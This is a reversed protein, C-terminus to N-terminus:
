SLIKEYQRSIIEWTFKEEWNRRGAQGLEQLRAPDDLLDKITLALKVPDVRTYGFKDKPAECIIGGKTWQTIEVSNGVPVTVYPLGAAAAEFLVLPSYEVNSAFIFLDASFFAKIVDERNLNNVIIRKQGTNKVKHVLEALIIPFTASFDSSSNRYSFLTLIPFFACLQYFLNEQSNLPSGYKIGLTHLLVKIIHKIRPIFNSFAFIPPLCKIWNLINKLINFRESAKISDTEHPQNYIRFRESAKIYDTEHEQTMNGNLLLTMKKQPINLNLFANAVEIHGKLGTFSGVTLLLIEDDNIGLRKRINNTAPPNFEKHSAGNPLISYHSIGNEKAFNIDRYDTSYFILHDFKRLIDPLKKFYDQYSPEYLCSFGCPIFVKRARIQELCTWLADFTWQQAAKILIVDFDSEILFNQYATIEGNIGRVQNGSISFEKIAVGNLQFDTREKLISTAVTVHHGYSVLHEAIEQMVKQVGGKSPYYFECCLLIKM